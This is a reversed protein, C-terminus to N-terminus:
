KASPMESALCNQCRFCFPDMPRRESNESHLKKRGAHEPHMRELSERAVYEPVVYELVVLEQITQPASSHVASKLEAKQSLALISEQSGWNRETELLELFRRLNLPHQVRQTHFLQSL